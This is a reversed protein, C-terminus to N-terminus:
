TKVQVKGGLGAEVRTRFQPDHALREAIAAVRRSAATYRMDFREAIAKISLRAVRRALYIAVQRAESSRRAPRLLDDVSVKYLRAVRALIDEIGPVVPRKQAVPIEPDDAGTSRARAEEVFGDSGLYIQGRLQSWPRAHDTMGETVFQRYAAQAQRRTRAFHELVWDVTLWSDLPEGGATAQYSSWPWAGPDTVLGARVPNLVVYRCVELLYTEREILIAGFRGQFLHGVREHRRNFAQTYVGNLHRIALSLNADPTELVLHYHNDMLVWAHCVVRYQEVMEALTWVFRKRDDDDRVVAKRENGRATVHYVAGAYSIRLPRAM